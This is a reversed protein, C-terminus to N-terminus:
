FIEISDPGLRIVKRPDVADDADAAVSHEALQDVPNQPASRDVVAAVDFVGLFMLYIPGVQPDADDGAAGGVGEGVPMNLFAQGLNRSIRVGDSPSFEVATRAHM